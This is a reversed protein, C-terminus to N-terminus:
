LVYWIKNDNTWMIECHLYVGYVHVYQQIDTVAWWAMDTPLQRKRYSETSHLRRCPRSTKGQIKQSRSELFGTIKRKTKHVHTAAHCFLISCDCHAQENRGPRFSRVDYTKDKKTLRSNPSAPLMWRSVARMATATSWFYRCQASPRCFMNQMLSPSSKPCQLLLYISPFLVTQKQNKGGEWGSQVLM